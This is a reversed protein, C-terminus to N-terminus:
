KNNKLHCEMCWWKGNIGVWHKGQHTLTIGCKCCKVPFIHPKNFSKIFGSLTKKGM